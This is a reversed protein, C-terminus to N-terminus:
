MRCHILQVLNRLKMWYYIYKKIIKPRMKKVDAPLSVSRWSLPSSGYIKNSTLELDVDQMERLFLFLRLFNFKDINISVFIEVFILM